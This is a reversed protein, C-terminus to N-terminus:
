TENTMMDEQKRQNGSSGTGLFLRSEVIGGPTGLVSRSHLLMARRQIPRFIHGCVASRSNIMAIKVGCQPTNGYARIRIPQERMIRM